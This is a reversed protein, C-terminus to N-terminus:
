DEAPWESEELPRIEVDDYLGMKTGENLRIQQIRKQEGEPGFVDACTYGGPEWEEVTVDVFDSLSEVPHWVPDRRVSHQTGVERAYDADPYEVDWIIGIAADAAEEQAPTLEGPSRVTFTVHKYPEDAPSYVILDFDRGDFEWDRVAEQVQVIVSEIPTGPNDELQGVIAVPRCGPGEYIRLHALGDNLELGSYQICIEHTLEM